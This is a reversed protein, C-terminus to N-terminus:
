RYDLPQQRSTSHLIQAKNASQKEEKQNQDKDGRRQKMMQWQNCTDRPLVLYVSQPQFEKEIERFFSITVEEPKNPKRMTIALEDDHEANNFAVGLKEYTKKGM